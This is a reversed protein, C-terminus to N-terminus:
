NLKFPLPLQKNTSGTAPRASDVHQAVSRQAASINHTSHPGRRGCGENPLLLFAAGSPVRLRLAARSLSRRGAGACPREPVIAFSEPTGRSYVLWLDCPYDGGVAAERM